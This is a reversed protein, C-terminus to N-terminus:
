VDDAHLLNADSELPVPLPREHGAAETPRVSDALRRRAGRIRARRQDWAVRATRDSTTRAPPDLGAHERPSGLRRWPAHRLDGRAAPLSIYSRRRDDAIDCTGAPAHGRADVARDGSGSPTRAAASRSRGGAMTPGATHGGLVGADRDPRRVGHHRQERCYATASFRTAAVPGVVCGM